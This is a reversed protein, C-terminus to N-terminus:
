FKFTKHAVMKGLAVNLLGQIVYDHLYRINNLKTKMSEKNWCVLQYVKIIECQSLTSLIAREYEFYM